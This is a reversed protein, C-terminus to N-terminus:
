APPLFTGPAGRRTHEITPDSSFMHCAVRHEPGVEDLLPERRSCVPEAFPCRPHFRCGTPIDILSPVDGGLVQTQRTATPDPIPAAALLFRTYPHLPARFLAERSAQEVLKGLYMVAIHDSVYQVVALNHAIFLETLHLSRQLDRLLNLIQAQVSVDLASVPEDAVLLPPHLILARAIGVRQRQGGSLQHPYRHLFARSLGVLDLMELVQREREAKDSIGHTILPALLTQKVTRRPNLSSYPDQFVIQMQRRIDRLAGGHTATLDRGQFLVQGGTPEVLRLILRAVTSKGSGSEGVLGLTEGRRIQFSVGDVARVVRPSSLWGSRVAFHKKLDVVDLLPAEATRGSPAQVAPGANRLASGDARDQKRDEDAAGDQWSM